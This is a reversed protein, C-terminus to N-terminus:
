AANAQGEHDIQCAAKRGKSRNCPGCLVQFGAPFGNVVLWHYIFTGGRNGLEARHEAGDGNVHDITLEDATGCCTCSLGYHAFVQARQRHRRRRRAASRLAAYREPDRERKLRKREQRATPTERPLETVPQQPIPHNV